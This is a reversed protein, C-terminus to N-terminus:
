VLEKKLQVAKLVENFLEEVTGNNEIIVDCWSHDGMATESEHTLTNYLEPNVIDLKTPIEYGDDSNNLETISDYEPFRLGFKRRVGILLGGRDSVAKGENEPFRVDTIIWNPWDSEWWGNDQTPHTDEGWRGNDKYDAFLANVWINPHIVMRGGQTGLLQLIKRPTLKVFGISQDDHTEENYPVLHRIGQNDCVDYYWWEEGLETNKYDRDELQERTCGLILCVCDKLKDACKKIEYKQVAEVKYKYPKIYTNFRDFTPQNLEDGIYQIMQGVLDKGAKIGGSVGFLNNMINMTNNKFKEKIEENRWEEFQKLDKIDNALTKECTELFSKWVGKVRDDSVIQNKMQRIRAEREPICKRLHEIMPELLGSMIRQEM